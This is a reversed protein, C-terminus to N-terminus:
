TLSSGSWSARWAKAWRAKAGEYGLLANRGDRIETWGLEPNRHIRRRLEIMSPAIRATAQRILGARDIPTASM